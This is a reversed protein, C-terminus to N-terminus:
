HAVTPCSIKAHMENERNERTLLFDRFYSARSYVIVFSYLSFQAIVPFCSACFISFQFSAYNHHARFFRSFQSRAITDITSVCMNRARKKNSKQEKQWAKNGVSINEM